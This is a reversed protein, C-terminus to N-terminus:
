IAGVSATRGGKKLALTLALGTLRQLQGVEGVVSGFLELLFHDTDVSAECVVLLLSSEDQGFLFLHTHASNNLTVEREKSM